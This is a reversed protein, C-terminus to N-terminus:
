RFRVRVLHAHSIAKAAADPRVSGTHSAVRVRVRVM